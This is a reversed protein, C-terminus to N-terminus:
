LDLLTRSVSEDGCAHVCLSLSLSERFYHVNRTWVTPEVLRGRRGALRYHLSHLTEEQEEEQEEEQQQPPLEQAAGGGDGRAHEVGLASGGDADGAAEERTQNSHVGHQQPETPETLPSPFQHKHSAVCANDGSETALPFQPTSPQSSVPPPPPPTQITNTTTSSISSDGNPKQDMPQATEDMTKIGEFEEVVPLSDDMTPTPFLSDENTGKSDNTHVPLSLRRLVRELLDLTFLSQTFVLIKDGSLVFGELLSLFLVLKGSNEVNGMEFDAGWLEKDNAWDYTGSHNPAAHNNNNIATTGVSANSSSVGGGHAQALQQAQPTM